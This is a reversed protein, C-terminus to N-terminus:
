RINEDNKTYGEYETIKELQELDLEPCGCVLTEIEEPRFLQQCTYDLTMEVKSKTVKLAASNCVSHFGEYFASFQEAISTNLVHDVYM